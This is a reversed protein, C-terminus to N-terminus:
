RPEVAFNGNGPDTLRIRDTIALDTVAALREAPSWQDLVPHALVALLHRAQRVPDAIVAHLASARMERKTVGTM